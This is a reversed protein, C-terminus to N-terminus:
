EYLSLRNRLVRIEDELEAIKELLHRIVDIGEPNINLDYRLHVIQELDKVSEKKIYKRHDFDILEILEFDILEDVFSDPVQYVSCIQNISIIEKNDM